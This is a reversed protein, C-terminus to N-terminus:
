TTIRYYVIQMSDYPCYNALHLVEHSPGWKSLVIPPYGRKIVIGSHEADGNQLYVVVDGPLVDGVDIRKYEDDVLVKQV